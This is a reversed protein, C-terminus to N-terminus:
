MPESSSAPARCGLRDARLWRSHSAWEWPRVLGAPPRPSRAPRGPSPSWACPPRNRAPCSAAAPCRPPAARGIRLRHHEVLREVPHVRFADHPHAPEEPRQGPLAPRDQHGAVQHALQLVGGIVQDDDAPALHDGVRAWASRSAATAPSRTVSRVGAPGRPPWPARVRRPRRPRGRGRGARRRRARRPGPPRPAPRPRPATRRPRRAGPRARAPTGSSVPSATSNRAAATAPSSRRRHRRPGDRRVPRLGPGPVVAEPQQQARLPGLEAGYAAPQDGHDHRHDHGDAQESIARSSPAAVPLGAQRRTGSPGPPSATM